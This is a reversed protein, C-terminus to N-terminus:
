KQQVFAKMDDWEKCQSIYEIVADATYETALIANVLQPRKMRTIFMKPVDVSSRGYLNKLTDLDKMHLRFARESMERYVDKYKRNSAM